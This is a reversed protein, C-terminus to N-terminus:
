QAYQFSVTDSWPSSAIKTEWKIRAYYHGPNFYKGAIVEKEGMPKDLIINKFRSDTAIQLRLPSSTGHRKNQLYARIGAIKFNYFNILAVDEGKDFHKEIYLFPKLLLVNESGPTGAEEPIFLWEDHFLEEKNKAALEFDGCAIVTQCNKWPTDDGPAADIGVYCGAFKQWLHKGEAWQRYADGNKDDKSTRGKGWAIYAIIHERSIKEAFISCYGSHRTFNKNSTLVPPTIIVSHWLKEPIGHRQKFELPTNSFLILLFKGPAMEGATSNYIIKGDAVLAIGTLDITSDSANYLEVWSNDQGPRCDITLESFVLKGVLQTGSISESADCYHLLTLTDILFLLIM